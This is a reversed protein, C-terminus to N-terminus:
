TPGEPRLYNKDAYGPRRGPSLYTPGNPRV